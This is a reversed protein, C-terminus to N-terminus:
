PTQLPVRYLQRGDGGHTSDIFLSKGDRGVRPHLDCRWEGTYAPPSLFRGLVSTRRREIEFLFLTIRHDWEDPYEDFVLFRNGSLYSQHGDPRALLLERTSAGDDAYLYFGQPEDGSPGVWINLHAADVWIFHSIVRGQEVVRLDSGDPAASLMRTAFRKADPSRWRHLFVFRSGDSSLLVHNFYHKASRIDGDPHPMAAIQSIPIVLESEGSRLNVRWIGSDKPALVKANPDPIGPYGYGPRMDQIRRFDTTMATNGDPSVTYVPSPITRMAKTRVNLIHCVFRDGQRDNWLIEDASGPRWQLMCGQQWCWSRSQGLAIWRNNDQTDVMGVGIVDDVGPSRGEFNVEMGLVYRSTPDTQFKDYYGFWHHKPGQTLKEPPHGIGARDM